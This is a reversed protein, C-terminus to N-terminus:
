FDIYDIDYVGLLIWKLPNLLEWHNNIKSILITDGGFYEM